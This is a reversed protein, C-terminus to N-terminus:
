PTAIVAGNVMGSEYSIRAASNTIGVVASWPIVGGTEASDALQKLWADAKRIENLVNQRHESETSEKM